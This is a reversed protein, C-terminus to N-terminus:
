CGLRIQSEIYRYSSDFRKTVFCSLIYLSALPAYVHVFISLFTLTGANVASLAASVREPETTRHIIPRPPHLIHPLTVM